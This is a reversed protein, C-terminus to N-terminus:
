EYPENKFTTRSDLVAEFARASGNRMAIIPVILPMRYNVRVLIIDGPEGKDFDNLLKDDLRAALDSFRVVQLVSVTLRQSCDSGGIAFEDCVLTKFAGLDAPGDPRGTRIQRSADLVADNLAAMTFGMIGIQLTAVIAFVLIPALLAFELASGGREDKLFSRSVRVDVSPKM